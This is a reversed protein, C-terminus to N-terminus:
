TAALLVVVAGAGGEAARAQCFALVERRQALWGLTLNKLVPERGPSGLGKGHVIRVCRLGRKMCAMLFESFLQRAEHRNCGHLDLHDQVVWRGRRLDRLVSPALGSRIWAAEDGGELYLDLLPPGHLTEWLAAAEDQQRQRPIAPPPPPEHHIRDHVLPIADAVAERFLTAEEEPLSAERTKARSPRSRRKM